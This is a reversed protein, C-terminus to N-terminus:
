WPNLRPDFTAALGGDTIFRRTPEWDSRLLRGLVMASVRGSGAAKLATAASQLNAGTTWSDDILVVHSGPPLPKATFRDPTYGRDHDDDLRTLVLPAEAHAAWTHAVIRHLPHEGTRGSRVSPITAWRWPEGRSGALHHAAPAHRRLFWVTWTAVANWHRRQAAPTKYGRLASYAQGGEIAYTMFAIRDVLARPSGAARATLDCSRCLTYNPGVPAACTRCVGSVRPQVNHLYSGYERVILADLGDGGSPPSVPRGVM